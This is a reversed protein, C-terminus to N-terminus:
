LGCTCRAQTTSVAGHCHPADNSLCVCRLSVQILRLEFTGVDHGQSNRVAHVEHSYTSVVNAHVLNSAIAAESAAAALPAGGSGGGGSIPVVKVAM